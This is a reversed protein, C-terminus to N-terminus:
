ILAFFVTSRRLIQFFMGGLLSIYAIVQLLDVFSEQWHGVFSMYWYKIVPVVIPYFNFSGTLYDPAKPDFNMYPHFFLYKAKFNWVRICDDFFTPAVSGLFLVHYLKLLVLFGLLGMLGRIWFSFGKWESLFGM